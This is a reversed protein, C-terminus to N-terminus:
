PRRELLRSARLRILDDPRDVDWLTRLERWRWGLAALRARTRDMVTARSWEIGEFLKPSTRSLGVLPYGGDEAPAFVADCGRLLRAARRVDAVRLAPCDSGVLLMRAHRRLGRRFAEQMRRGIDGASQGRLAVGSRRALVRLLRHGSPSGHLEVEGCGAKLVTDLTREVLRAHLRAAEVPGIAAALRTKVKGPQPAKAFVVILTSAAVVPEPAVPM